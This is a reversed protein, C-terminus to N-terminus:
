PVLDAGRERARRRPNRTGATASSTRRSRSSPRATRAALAVSGDSSGSDIVLLEEVRERRLATLLEDLYREGDKVPIVATVTATM